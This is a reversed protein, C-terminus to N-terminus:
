DMFDKATPPVEPEGKRKRISLITKAQLESPMKEYGAYEYYWVARGQTAGRIESAFGFMEAVPVKATITMVEGEQDMEQIQGRRGQITNIIGSMYTSPSQVVLKQKPELLVPKAQLFSAYIPRRIAPITQAPGRHAPDVHITADNLFIKVGVIAEKAQPGSDMAQKFGDLVLEKIDQLFQVGKSADIFVNGKYVKMVGKAEDRAMGAKILREILEKGKLSDDIDGEEIAKKVGEDLPHVEIKFKNHKNPSKGEVEPGDVLITETYVVIPPTTVIEVGGENKIKYEVIELHLEGMGSLLHEGTQHNLEVRITPDEKALRQLVEVLKVLEKPNKAEISKTVVPVSHHKIKEFPMEMEGESITEGAYVDHLGVLAVINGPPVEDVMLRDPGMYIAVQQLKETKYKSALYLEEGKRLTGSFVRGVAVEGAHPDVQIATVMFAVKGKPDCNLMSQGMPSSSDGHWITPIRYKQAELPSPLHDVVMELMVEALPAIGQLKKHEGNLCGNYIDKFSVNNKKMIPYSVAWKNFATGFAVNGKEVKIQWAEKFEDAGYTTILNNVGSIIKLFRTQMANSDLKLENIFRDIKNIFLVPKVKEKLAQRLVTETQPMIGEVCDVVLIVGDVARMARTVHGGFDVHGPTDILNILYQQGRVTAPISMNAAKITIGRQQEQIDYDTVRQEGALEQSILGAHAVFTDSLTSNHVVMGEAVFNETGPVTFDYVVPEVCEEVRLVEVFALDDSLLVDLFASSDGQLRSRVATLTRRLPTTRGAEYQYYFHNVCQMSQGGRLTSLAQRSLPIADLVRSGQSKVALHLAREQKGAVTFGINKVFARTADGSIYLTDGQRITPCAFRLLLLQLDELMQPSASTISIAGRAKEVTGDCDFYARLFAAVANSPATSLFHSVRVNRAKLRTPYDFLANLVELLTLSSVRLTPVSGNYVRNIHGLDLEQVLALFATELEPKGVTFTARSGDGVFLGALYFFHEFSQPLKMGKGNKSRWGGKRYFLETVEGYAEELPIHLNVSLTLLDRVLFCGRHISSELAEKRPKSPLLDQMRHMGFQRIGKRIRLALRPSLRVYLPRPALLRLVERKLEALSAERPAIQRACVVRDGAHLQAAPKYTVADGDFVLFPHEPTTTLVLGSRLTTRLAKGGQLKWAFQVAHKEIRGTQPNLSFCQANKRSVDHVIKEEDKQVIPSEASLHNFFDEATCTAGNALLIRTPPAVCKGHDVHAVIGMNRINAPTKMLRQVHLTVAEKTAM